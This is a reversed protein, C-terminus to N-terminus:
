KKLLMTGRAQLAAGKVMSIDKFRPRQLLELFQNPVAAGLTKLDNADFPKPAYAMAEASKWAAESWVYERRLADAKSFYARKDWAKASQEIDLTIRKLSIAIVACIDKCLKDNKAQLQEPLHVLLLESVIHIDKNRESVSM